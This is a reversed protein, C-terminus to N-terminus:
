SAERAAAIAALLARVAAAPGDPHDWVADGSAIFDAGARALAAAEAPAADGAAVCPVTMLESWWALLEPDPGAAAAFSGFAVYDAGREAATMAAHRSGGCGVGVIADVGVARRAAEYADAGEVHVGDAGTEAAIGPRGDILFAVGRGQAVPRLAAAAARMEDDSADELRLLLCAVDGGDLAAALVPAFAAAGGAGM